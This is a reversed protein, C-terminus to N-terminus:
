FKPFFMGSRRKYDRYKQGWLDTMQMEELLCDIYWLPIFAILVVFWIWHFFLLFGLGLLLIHMSVYMPHRIYKYPGDTVLEKTFMPKLLKYFTTVLYYIGWITIAVGIFLFWNNSTTVPGGYFISNLVILVVFEVIWLLRPLIEILVHKAKM